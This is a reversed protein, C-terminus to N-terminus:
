HSQEFRFLGGFLDISHQRGLSQDLTSSPEFPVHRRDFLDVALLCRQLALDQVLTRCSEETSGSGTTCGSGAMKLTERM